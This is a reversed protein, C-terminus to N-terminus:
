FQKNTDRELNFFIKMRSLGDDQGLSTHGGKRKLSSQSVLPGFTWVVLNYYMWQNFSAFMFAEIKELKLGMTFNHGRIDLM